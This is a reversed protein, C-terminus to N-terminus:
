LTNYVPTPGTWWPKTYYQQARLWPKLQELRQNRGIVIRHGLATAGCPFKVHVPHRCVVPLHAIHATKTTPILLLSRPLPISLSEIRRSSDLKSLLYSPDGRLLISDLLVAYTKLDDRAERQTIAVSYIRKSQSPPTAHPSQKANLQQCCVAFGCGSIHYSCVM